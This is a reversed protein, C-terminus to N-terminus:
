ESNKTKDSEVEKLDCPNTMQLQLLLVISRIVPYIPIDFNVTIFPFFHHKLSFLTHKSKLFCSLPNAINSLSKLFTLPHMDSEGFTPYKKLIRCPHPM